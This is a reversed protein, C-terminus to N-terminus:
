ATGRIQINSLTELPKLIMRNAINARDEPSMDDLTVERGDLMFVNTYTIEQM